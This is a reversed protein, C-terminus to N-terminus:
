PIKTRAISKKLEKLRKKVNENEITTCIRRVPSSSINTLCHWPHTLRLHFIDNQTQKKKTFMIKTVSKNIMIDLFTIRAHSKQM